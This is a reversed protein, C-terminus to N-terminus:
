ASAFNVNLYCAVRACRQRRALISQAITSCETYNSRAAPIPSTERQIFNGIRASHVYDEDAMEIGVRLPSLYNIWVM